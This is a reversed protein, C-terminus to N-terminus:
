GMIVSCDNPKLSAVTASAVRYSGDDRKTDHSVHGSFDVFGEWSGSDPPFSIEGDQAAVGLPLLGVMLAVVMGALSVRLTRM